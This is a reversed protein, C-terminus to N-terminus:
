FLEKLQQLMNITGDMHLVVMAVMRVGNIIEIHNIIVAQHLPQNELYLVLRKIINFKLM